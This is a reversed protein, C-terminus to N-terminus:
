SAKQLASPVLAIGELTCLVNVYARAWARVDVTEDAPEVRVAPPTKQNATKM